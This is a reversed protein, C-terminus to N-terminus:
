EVGPGCACFERALNWFPTKSETCALKERERGGGWMYYITDFCIIYIYIM